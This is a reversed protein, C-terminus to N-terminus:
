SKAVVIKRKKKPVPMGPGEFDVRIPTDRTIPVFGTERGEKEMQRIARENMLRTRGDGKWDSETTFIGKRKADKAVTDKTMVRRKPSAETPKENGLWRIDKSDLHYKFQRGSEIRTGLSRSFTEFHQDIKANSTSIQPATIVRKMEAKCKRCAMTEGPYAAVSCTIEIYHGCGRCQYPYVM